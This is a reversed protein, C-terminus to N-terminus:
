IGPNEKLTVGDKDYFVYVKQVGKTAEYRYSLPTKHGEVLVISKVQWDRYKSKSFSDHTAKPVESAPIFTETYSWTGDVNYTVKVTLGDKVFEAKYNSVNNTWKPDKVDPYKDAFYKKANDPVKVVQAVSSGALFLLAMAAIIRKMFM